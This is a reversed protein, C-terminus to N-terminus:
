LYKNKIVNFTNGDSLIFRGETVAFAERKGEQSVKTEVSATDSEKIALFVVTQSRDLGENAIDSTVNAINNEGPSIVINGEGEKWKIVIDTMNSDM